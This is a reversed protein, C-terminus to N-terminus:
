QQRIMVFDNMYYGGGIDFDAAKEIIFGMKFYFNVAKINQRNVQLKMPRSNDIQQLVYNFFQEGIGTRHKSVEIYFKHLYYYTDELTFSAYAVPNGDFFALFFREGEKMQAAIVPASYRSQLMFEIQEASIIAPYHDHWIRDALQAIVDIDSESAPRFSLNM